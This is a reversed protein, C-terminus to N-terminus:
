QKVGWLSLYQKLADAPENYPTSVGAANSATLLQIPAVLGADTGKVSLMKRLAVDIMSYGYLPYSTASWAGKNGHQLAAITDANASRGFVRIDNLGASSLAASLGSTYDANDFLLYKLDPNSRLGNVATPVVQGQAVQDATLQITKVDCGPCQSKIENTFGDGFTVYVPYATVHAYLAKGQGKSDAIFWDAVLKGVESAESCGGAAAVISGSVDVPCSGAFVMPVNAQAYADIVSQSVTKPTVGTLLTASAGQNLATTLASQLTAPNTVDYTLKTFSWGVAKAAVEAGNAIITTAPVANALFFIKKGSPIPQGIPTTETIKTPKALAKNASAQATKVNAGDAGASNGSGTSGGNSTGCATLALLAAGAVAVTRVSLLKRESM